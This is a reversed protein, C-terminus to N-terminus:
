DHRERVGARQNGRAATLVEVQPKRLAAPDNASQLHGTQCVACTQTKLKAAMNTFGRNKRSGTSVDRGIEILHVEDFAGVALKQQCFVNGLVADDKAMSPCRWQQTSEAESDLHPFFNQAPVRM